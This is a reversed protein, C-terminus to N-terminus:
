IIVISCSLGRLGLLAGTLFVGTCSFCHYWWLCGFLDLLLDHGLSVLLSFVILDLTIQLLLLLLKALHQHRIPLFLDVLLDFLRLLLFFFSCLLENLLLAINVALLLLFLSCKTKSKQKSEKSISGQM